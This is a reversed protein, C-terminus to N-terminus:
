APRPAAPLGPKPSLSPWPGWGEEITSQARKEALYEEDGIDTAPVSLRNNGPNNVDSIASRLSDTTGGQREIEDALENAEKVSLKLLGPM